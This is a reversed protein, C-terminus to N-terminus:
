EIENLWNIYKCTGDIGPYITEHNIGLINLKGLIESHHRAPIEIQWLQGKFDDEEDLPIIKNDNNNNSHVTFWGNQAVIRENNLNPKFIRTKHIKYPSKDRKLDVLNFDSYKLIYIYANSKDEGQCAFWLAVLPNTTWDLLRTALGYHQVYVLLEWDDLSGKKVINDGRRKIEEIITKEVPELRHPKVKRAIKPILRHDATQGRFLLADPYAGVIEIENKENIKLTGDENYEVIVNGLTGPGLIAASNLSLVQGIFDELSTLTRRIMGMNESNGSVIEAILL